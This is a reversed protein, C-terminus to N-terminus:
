LNFLEYANRSTIKAVTEQTEGRLNSLFEAILRVNAPENVTGRKPAPTLFPCDTELVM